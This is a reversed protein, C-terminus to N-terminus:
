LEGRFARHQLSAFLEDLRALATRHTAKLREISQIRQAFTQQCSSDPVRVQLSAFFDASVRKQGAAGKMSAAGMKRVKPLQLLYFVFTALAETEARFVHFETSGFGVQTAIQDAKAMKGNEYCPTIKAVLVDGRCFPTYGKAVQDFTRREEAVVSREMESVAAMPVFSVVKNAQASARDAASLKPNIEIFSSLKCIGAEHEQPLEGFMELFVAQGLSDLQAIAARRQARLTEAQDLIAAIRRQEPLAPLPIDLEALFSEPVRRQGASGTMRRTGDKRVHGQRLFHLLYRADVGSDRPRVVHFETSGFGIPLPLRAQAIKGNEFCPTIKAVLVDGDKFSTYGKSVEAYARVAPDEVAASIASVASMPVFAVPADGSLKADLMPNLTAVKSLKVLNLTTM